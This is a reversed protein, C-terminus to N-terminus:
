LVNSSDSKIKCMYFFFIIIDDNSINRNMIMEKQM